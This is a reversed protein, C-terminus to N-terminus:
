APLAGDRLEALRQALRGRFEPTPAAGAAWGSGDAVFARHVVAKLKARVALEAACAECSDLHRCVAEHRAATLEGDIFEYLRELVQRCTLAIQPSM